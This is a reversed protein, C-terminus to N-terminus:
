TIKGDVIRITRHAFTAINPDHTVMIITKGRKENLEKLLEMIASGTRTDLNGTPEDALLIEPDNVLARAIAVRQQQGGSLESPKHSYFQEDLDMSRLVDICRATCTRDGTKLILPYQVNELATLLPILNFQQFIFGIHDRRLGTLEDDSMTSVDRGRIFLTGATPTDLCGMLNLLTSKGSGSPGMIAIFDGQMIELTVHDLAVVDGGPLPYVKSVDRFQIIAEGDPSTIM